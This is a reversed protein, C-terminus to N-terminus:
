DPGACNKENIKSEALKYKKILNNLFKVNKEISKKETNSFRALQTIPKM